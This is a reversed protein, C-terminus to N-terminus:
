LHLHLNNQDFLHQFCLSQACHSCKLIPLEFCSDSSCKGEVDFNIQLVNQFQQVPNPVEYGSKQWSYVIMDHYAPACLQNYTISVMQIIFIRDHLTQEKSQFRIYDSIRRIIIKFQRFFYVDLPQIWRTTKPPITLVKLNTHEIKKQGPWSDQILLSKNECIEQKLCSNVWFQISSSSMKGSKTCTLVINEPLSRLSEKVRPGFEGDKEQM